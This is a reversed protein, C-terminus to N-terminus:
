NLPQGEQAEDYDDAMGRIGKDSLNDMLYDTLVSLRLNGRQYETLLTTLEAEAKQRENLEM